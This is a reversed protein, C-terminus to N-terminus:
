WLPSTLPKSKKKSYPLHIQAFSHVQISNKVICYRWFIIYAVQAAALCGICTVHEWQKSSRSPIDMVKIPQHNCVHKECWQNMQPWMIGLQDAHRMLKALFFHLIWRKLNRLYKSKVRELVSMRTCKWWSMAVPLTDLSPKLQSTPRSSSGMWSAIPPHSVYVEM